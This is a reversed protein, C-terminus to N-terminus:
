ITLPVETPFPPGQLVETHEPMDSNDTPPTPLQRNERQIKSPPQDITHLFQAGEDEWDLVTWETGDATVATVVPKDAVGTSKNLGDTQKLLRRKLSSKGTQPAGVTMCQAICLPM